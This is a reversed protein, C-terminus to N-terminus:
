VAKGTNLNIKGFETKVYPVVDTYTDYECSEFEDAYPRLKLYFEQSVHSYQLAYRVGDVFFDKDHKKSYCYIM